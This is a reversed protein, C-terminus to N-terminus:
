SSPDVFVQITNGTLGCNYEANMVEDQFCSGVFQNNLYISVLLHEAYPNLYSSSDSVDSCYMPMMVVSTIIFAAKYTLQFYPNQDNEDTAFCTSKDSTFQLNDSKFLNEVAM